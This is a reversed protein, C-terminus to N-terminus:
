EVEDLGQWPKDQSALMRAIESDVAIGYKRRQKLRDCAKCRRHIRGKGDTDLRVNDGTLSHGRICVTQMRKELAAPFLRKM